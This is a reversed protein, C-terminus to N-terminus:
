KLDELISMAVNYVSSYCVGWTPGHQQDHGDFREHNDLVHSFEHVLADVAKCFDMRSDIYIITQDPRTITVAEITKRPRRRVKVAALSPFEKKVGAILRMWRKRDFM